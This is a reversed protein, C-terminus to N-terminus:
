KQICYRVLDEKNGQGLGVIYWDDRRCYTLPVRGVCVLGERCCASHVTM